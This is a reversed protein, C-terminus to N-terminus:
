RKKYVDHWWSSFTIFRTFYKHVLLSSWCRMSKRWLTIEWYGWDNQVRGGDLSPVESARTIKSEQNLLDNKLEDNENCASQSNVGSFCLNTTVVEKPSCIIQVKTNLPQLIKTSPTMNFVFRIGRSIHSKSTIKPISQNEVCWSDTSQKVLFTVNRLGLNEFSSNSNIM